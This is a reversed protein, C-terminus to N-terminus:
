RARTLKRDIPIGAPVEIRVASGALRQLIEPDINPDQIAALYYEGPRVNPITFRGTEDIIDTYVHFSQTAYLGPWRRRDTSFLVIAGGRDPGGTPTVVSGRVEGVARTMTLVADSSNSELDVPEDTAERGNIRFSKVFWGAARVQGGVVYRERPVTLTFTRDSDWKVSYSQVIERTPRSPGVPLMEALGIAVQTM